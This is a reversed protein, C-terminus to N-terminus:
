RSFTVRTQALTRGGSDAVSVLYTGAQTAGFSYQLGGDAGVSAGYGAQAGDPRTITVTVTTNAPFNGGVLRAAESAKIVSPASLYPGAALAAASCLAALTICASARLMSVSRPVKV